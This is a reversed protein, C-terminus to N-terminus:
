GRRSCRVLDFTAADKWIINLRDSSGRQTLRFYNRQRKSAEEVGELQLYDAGVYTVPGTRKVTRVIANGGFTAIKNASITIQSTSTGATRCAQASVDWKGRVKSPLQQAFASSATIIAAFTLLVKTKLPM